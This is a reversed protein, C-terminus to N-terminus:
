QKSGEAKQSSLPPPADVTSPEGTRPRGSPSSGSRVLSSGPKMRTFGPLFVVQRRYRQQLWWQLGLLPLLVLAGPECGYLVPGLVGPWFLSALVVALALGAALPWFVLRPLGPAPARGDGAAGAHPPAGDPPARHAVALALVYLVLGVALLTLSCLLLWVQQPFHYLRVPALAAGSCVLGSPDINDAAAEGAGAPEGRGFQSEFGSALWRELDASSLAPQPALLWGRWGWRQEVSLGGEPYLAVWNAPLRVQVRVPFRGVDGRLVPPLLTTQLLGSDPARGPALQYSLELILPKRALEAPVPVRAIRGTDSPQGNDDVALANVSRSQREGRLTTKLNLGSLPGPLEVDLHPAYVHPFLFRVRYDQSANEGVEARVLAREVLVAAPASAAPENVVLAPPQDPRRGRLGLAPLTDRDGLDSVEQWSDGAVLVPRVGPEAYVRVLTEVRSASEPLLLPLTFRRGPGKAGPGPLDFSYDVILPHDKDVAAPLRVVWARFGAKKSPAPGEEAPAVARGREGVLTVRDPNLSEPVWLLVPGGAPPTAFVLRQRVQAQRGSLTVDVTSDAAVDPRPTRWSVSVRGPLRETRWTHESKGPPLGEWDPDPVAPPVLEKDRPVIVTVQGGRDMVKLPEPLGLNNLTGQPAPQPAAGAAAPVPYLAELTVRFRDTKKGGLPVQAVAADVALAQGAAGPRPVLRVDEWGAPVKVELQDVGGARLPTVDIETTLRWGRETLRLTHAVQAAGADKVTELDLQLFPPPPPAPPPKAEVAQMARYTFAVANPDRRREEDTLERPSLTVQPEGRPQPTLRLDPPATVLLTGTHPFAGLVAFPGVPLSAEARPQFVQFTVELPDASSNKLQLVYLLPNKPDAQRFDAIREDPLRPSVLETRPPLLFRWESTQGRLPKLTFAMDTLVGTPSIRVAIRGEATLLPPGSPPAAPGKWSLELRSLAGLLASVRNKGDVGRVPLAQSAPRVDKGPVTLHVEKIAPDPLDLDLSTIPARPLDLDFGREAGKGTLPVELELVAQHDGPKEVEIVYGDETSPPRCLPTKGDLTIAMGKGQGCALAVPTNPRSTPFDFQAKLHVANEKVQGTLRCVSPLLPKEPGAARLQALEDLLKQYNEPRLLVANPLLRLGEKLDPCIIIIAGPPLNKLEDVSLDAHAPAAPRAPEAPPSSSKSPADAARVAVAALALWAACCAWGLRSGGRAPRRGTRQRRPSLSV